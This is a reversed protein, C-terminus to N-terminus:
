ENWCSFVKWWDILKHWICPYGISNQLAQQWWLGDCWLLLATWCDRGFMLQALCHMSPIDMVFLLGPNGTWVSKNFKGNWGLTEWFGECPHTSFRSTFHFWICFSCRTTSGVEFSGAIYTLSYILHLPGPEVPTSCIIVTANSILSHIMYYYQRSFLHSRSMLLFVDGQRLLM